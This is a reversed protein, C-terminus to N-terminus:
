EESRLSLGYRALGDMISKIGVKGLRPLKSLEKYTMQTLAEVTKIGSRFLINYAQVTLELEGIQMPEKEIVEKPREVLAPCIQPLLQLFHNGIAEADYNLSACIWRLGDPTLVSGNAKDKCFQEYEAIQAKTLAM